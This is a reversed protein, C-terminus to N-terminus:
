RDSGCGVRFSVLHPLYDQVRRAREAPCALFGRSLSVQFQRLSVHFRRLASMMLWSLFPSRFHSGVRHDGAHPEVVAFGALGRLEVGRDKRVALDAGGVFCGRVEGAALFAVLESDLEAHEALLEYAEVA